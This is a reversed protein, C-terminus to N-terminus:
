LRIGLKTSWLESQLPWANFTCGELAISQQEMVPAPQGAGGCHADSHGLWHGTEHNVVLNRYERLTGGSQNWPATAYLWRDQNIVVNNGITCSYVMDCISSYSPMVEAQALTVIFQGGSAVQQFTVGLRSWGHPDAYTQAVQSAFAAMDATITGKSAIQYTVVRAVPVAPASVSPTKIGSLTDSPQQLSTAPCFLTTENCQVPAQAHVLPIAFIMAAVIGITCLVTYKITSQM